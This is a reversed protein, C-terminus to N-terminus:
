RNKRNYQIFYYDYPNKEDKEGKVKSIMKWESENWSPFHTDGEFAHDIYTMYMKDAYPLMQKYIEEGGIIFWEKNPEEKNWKKIDDLSHIIKCSPAQFDTDRTVIINERNKLPGNLSEYTKRGMIVSKGTTTERFFKMDNPLRWPLANDKGILRNKDMAFLLSIM